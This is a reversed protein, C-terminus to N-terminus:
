TNLYNNNTDMERVSTRRRYNQQPTRHVKKVIKKKKDKGLIKHLDSKLGNIEAAKNNKVKDFYQKIEEETVPLHVTKKPTRNVRYM